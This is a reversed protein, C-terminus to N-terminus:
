SCRPNLLSLTPSSKINEQHASKPSALSRLRQSRLLLTSKAEHEALSSSESFAYRQNHAILRFWRQDIYATYHACAHGNEILELTAPETNLSGRVLFRRTEIKGNASLYWVAYTGADTAHTRIHWSFVAGVNSGLYVKETTHAANEPMIMSLISVIIVFVAAM